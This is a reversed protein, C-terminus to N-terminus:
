IKQGIGNIELEHVKGRSLQSKTQLQMAEAAHACNDFSDLKTKFHLKNDTIKKSECNKLYIIKDSFYLFIPLNKHM